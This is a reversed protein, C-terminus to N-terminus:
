NIKLTIILRSRQIQFGVAWLTGGPWRDYNQGNPRKKKKKKIKPQFVTSRQIMWFKLFIKGNSIWRCSVAWTAWERADSFNARCRGRQATAQRSSEGSRSQQARAM